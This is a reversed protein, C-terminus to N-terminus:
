QVSGSMLLKEIRFTNKHILIKLDNIKDHKEEIDRDIQKLKTHFPTLSDENLTKQKLMEKTVDEYIKSWQHLEQRMVEVDEQVHDLLKGLPNAVRSLAQINFRLQEIEQNVAERAKQAGFQWEIETKGTMQSLEKQSDLIQQVLHGHENSSLHLDQQDQPASFAEQQDLILLSTEEEEENQTNEIIINVKGLLLNDSDKIVNDLKERMRPAGPRSSSPRVSPPRLSHSNSTTTIPVKVIDKEIDTKENASDNRFVQTHMQLNDQNNAASDFTKMNENSQNTQNQEDNNDTLIKEDSANILLSNLQDKNNKDIENLDNSSSSSNLDNEAITYSSNLKGEDSQEIRPSVIENEVNNKDERNDEIATNSDLVQSKQEPDLEEYKETSNSSIIKKQSKTNDEKPLEKKEKDKGTKTNITKPQQPKKTIQPETKVSANEKRKSKVDNAKEKDQKNTSRTVDNKQSGLKETSRSTLKRADIAKKTSKNSEKSKPESIQNPKTSEKYKKVADGSTLQKDLAQALCQLLENTKEPEQGAVIKSPKASLSKGTTTSLVFIVKSLFSIKSERDKVNESNLENEEFLNEFFGTTKLVTTIIDHLFRFPPKKLLKESLPPRKVYKGLSLQTSKIVNPDLEKEM